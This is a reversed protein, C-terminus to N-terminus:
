SGHFRDNTKISVLLPNELAAYIGGVVDITKDNQFVSKVVDMEELVSKELWNLMEIEQVVSRDYVNMSSQKDKRNLYNLYSRM